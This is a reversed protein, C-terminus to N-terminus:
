RPSVQFLSSKKITMAPHSRVREGRCGRADPQLEVGRAHTGLILSTSKSPGSTPGPTQGGAPTSSVTSMQTGRCGLMISYERSPCLTLREAMRVTRTSRGRRAMLRTGLSNVGPRPWDKPEQRLKGWHRPLLM